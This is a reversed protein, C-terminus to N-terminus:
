SHRGSSGRRLAAAFVYFDRSVEVAAEREAVQPAPIGDCAGHVLRAGGVPDYVPSSPPEFHLRRLLRHARRTEAREVLALTACEETNATTAATTGTCVLLIVLYAGFLTIAIGSQSFLSTSARPVFAANFFLSAKRM